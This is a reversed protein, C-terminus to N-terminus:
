VRRRERESDSRVRKLPPQKSEKLIILQRSYILGRSKYKYRQNKRCMKLLESLEKTDRINTILMWVLFPVLLFLVEGGLGSYGRELDALHFIYPILGICLGVFLWWCRINILKKM